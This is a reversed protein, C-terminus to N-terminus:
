PRRRHGRHNKHLAQLPVGPAVRVLVPEELSTVDGRCDRLREGPSGGQKSPQGTAPRGDIREDHCERFGSPCHESRVRIVKPRQRGVSGVHQNLSDLDRVAAKIGAFSYDRFSSRIWVGTLDCLTVPGFGFLRM